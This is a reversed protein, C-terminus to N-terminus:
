LTEFGSTVQHTAETVRSNKIKPDIYGSMVPCSKLPKEVV